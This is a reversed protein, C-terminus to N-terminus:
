CMSMNGYTTIKVAWYYIDVWVSTSIQWCFISTGSNFFVMALSHWSTQGFQESTMQM